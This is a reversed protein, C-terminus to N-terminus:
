GTVAVSEAHSALTRGPGSWGRLTERLRKEVLIPVFAQVRAGAFSALGEAAQRRIAQPEVGYEASLRVVLRDLFSGGEPVPDEPAGDNEVVVEAIV